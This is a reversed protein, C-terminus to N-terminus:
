GGFRALVRSPLRRVLQLVLAARAHVNDAMGGAGNVVASAGLQVLSSVSRRLRIQAPIAGGGPEPAIMVVLTYTQFYFRFFWRANTGTFTVQAAAGMPGSSVPGFTFSTMLDEPPIGPGSPGVLSRAGLVWDTSLGDYTVTSAVSMTVPTCSFSPM